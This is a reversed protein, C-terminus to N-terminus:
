AEPVLKGRILRHTADPGIWEGIKVWKSGDFTEMTLRINDKGIVASWNEAQTKKSALQKEYAVDNDYLYKRAHHSDFSEQQSFRRTETVRWAGEVPIRKQKKTSM